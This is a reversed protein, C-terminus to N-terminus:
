RVDTEVSLKANEFRALWRPDDRGGRRAAWAQWAVFANITRPFGAFLVTQLLLEEVDAPSLFRASRELAARLRGGDGGAAAAGLLGIAVAEAPTM